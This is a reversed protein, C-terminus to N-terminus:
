PWDAGNNYGSWNAKQFAEVFADVYPRARQQPITVRLVKVKSQPRMQRVALAFGADRTFCLDYDTAVHRYLTGNDIGKLNLHNVTEVQHGLRKLAAALSEPINEDLLIKM